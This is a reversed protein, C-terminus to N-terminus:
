FRAWEPPDKLRYLIEGARPVYLRGEGERGRWYDVDIKRPDRYGLNIKRCMEEPIGTALTVRVRPREEGNEYTGIGRVHSSHALVAWPYDKFKDWQKLFYDRTHYGVEELIRGHSFSIEAIHPAYIILEGGDAVVPEMKYMCKGGTWLDDYMQPCHALVSEFPKDVYVIHLERSLSVAGEWATKVDGCFLGYLEGRHVVVCIALRDVPLFEAARDVIARVPTHAVGNIRPNTIVAGLWHFFNIFDAGGIGPFLYKNGGSFGVVEHPFVPGCILLLDYDFVVRNITIDVSQRFLGETIRSVERRSITGIKRLTGPDNWRHNFVGVEPFRREREERDMGLHRDVADESMPPHTGLAILFDLQRTHPRIVECITKFLVPVPCTRTGDPIIALVRRGDVPSERLFKEVAERIESEKLAGDKRFVGIM